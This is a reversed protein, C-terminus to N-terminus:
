DGELARIANGQYSGADSDYSPNGNGVGMPIAKPAYAVQMPCKGKMSGVKSPCVSVKPTSGNARCFGIFTGCAPCTIKQTIPSAKM